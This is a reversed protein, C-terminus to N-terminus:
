KEFVFLKLRSFRTRFGLLDGVKPIAALRNFECNWALDSVLLPRIGRTLMFYAGLGDQEILRCDSRQMFDVLAEDDFFLNHWRVPIPKLGLAVRLDNLSNVGQQSGEMMLLRGGPKLCNMLRLLVSQQLPWEMLNILFRQSIIFDYDSDLAFETSLDVQKLVVNKRGSLRQNALSLRTESFDIAHVVVGPIASYALTGEGEGCGADLIKSNEGIRRSILGIEANLLHKDYMSEVDARNWYELTRDTEDGMESDMPNWISVVRSIARAPRDYEDESAATDGIRYSGIWRVSRHLNCALDTGGCSNAPRPSLRLSGAGKAVAYLGTALWKEDAGVM